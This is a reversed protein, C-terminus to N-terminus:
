PALPLALFFSSGQGPQSELWLRGGHALAVRQSIALGLGVGDVSQALARGRYYKQFVYEQEEPPIGPGQDHVGLVAQQGQRELSLRVASGEPAYKIANGLLNILVQGVQGADALVSLEQGAPPPELTIGKAAASPALRALAEQWLGAACVPALSLSLDRAELSSVQMLSNLLGSLRLCEQSSVELFQAQRENVPGLVGERVLNVAERISTLPTRVEHSLMSIFEARLREEEQLRAAMRNFARALEGLEDRSNLAIPQFWGEGGVQAMGQRLRGLARGLYLALLLSGGLAVAGAIFLGTLGLRRAEQGRQELALLERGMEDRHEHQIATLTDLWAHVMAESPQPAPRGEPAAPLDKLGQELSAWRQRPQPDQVLMAELGRRYRALDDQAAQRYEEKDLIAFRKHDELLDFLDQILRESQELTQYNVRVIQGAGQSIERLGWFVLALTLGFVAVLALCWLFIKGSLGLGPRPAGRQASM